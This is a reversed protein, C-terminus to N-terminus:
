LYAYSFHINHIELDIFVVVHCLVCSCCYVKTMQINALITWSCILSNWPSGKVSILPYCNFGLPFCKLYIFSSRGPCLQFSIWPPILLCDWSHFVDGLFPFLMHSLCLCLNWWKQIVLHCYFSELLYLMYFTRPIFCIMKNLFMFCYFM